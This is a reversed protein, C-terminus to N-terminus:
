PNVIRLNEPPQLETTGSGESELAGLDPAAGNYPLGVYVGADIAPSSPQLHLDGAARNVFLPDGVKHGSLRSPTENQWNTIGSTSDPYLAGGNQTICDSFPGGQGSREGWCIGATSADANIWNNQFINTSVTHFPNAIKVVGYDSQTSIFINNKFQADTFIETGPENTVTFAPGRSIITNKFYRHNKMGVGAPNGPRVHIGSYSYDCCNYAVNGEMHWSSRAEIHYAYHPVDHVINNRVLHPTYGFGSSGASVDFWIGDGGTKYVVNNSITGGSSPGCVAIGASVEGFAPDHVKNGDVLFKQMVTGYGALCIGHNYDGNSTNYGSIDLNRLVLNDSSEANIGHSTGGKLILNQITVNNASYIGFINAHSGANIVVSEGNYSQWTQGAKPSISSGSVNSTYTGARINITTGTGSANLASQINNYANGNSGTCNRNTISYNGATCNATLTSDIYITASFSMTPILWLAAFLLQWM